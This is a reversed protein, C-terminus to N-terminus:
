NEIGTTNNKPLSGGVATNSHGTTNQLLSWYGLATNLAGDTNASLAQTLETNSYGLNNSSGTQFGFFYECASSRYPGIRDTPGM